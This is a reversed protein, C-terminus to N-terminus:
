EYCPKFKKYDSRLFITKQGLYWYYNRHDEKNRLILQYHDNYKTNIYQVYDNGSIVLCLYKKHKPLYRVLSKEDISLIKM